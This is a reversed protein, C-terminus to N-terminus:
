IKWVDETNDPVLNDKLQEIDLELNEAIDLAEEENDAEVEFDVFTHLYFRANYKNMTGQKLLQKVM